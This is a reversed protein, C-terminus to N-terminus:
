GTVVLTKLVKGILSNLDPNADNPDVWNRQCTFYGVSHEKPGIFITLDGIEPHAIVVGVYGGTALGVAYGIAAEDNTTPEVWAFIQNDVLAASGSSFHSSQGLLSSYQYVEQELTNQTTTSADRNDSATSLAMSKNEPLVSGILVFAIFVYLIYGVIRTGKKPSNILPIKSKLSTKMPSVTDDNRKEIDAM